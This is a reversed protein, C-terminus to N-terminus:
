APSTNPVRATPAEYPNWYDDFCTFDMRSALSTGVVDACGAARWANVLEDPWTMPRTCNRARREGARADLAAAMDYFMRNAVFGGRLV